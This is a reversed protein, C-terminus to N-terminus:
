RRASPPPVHPRVVLVSCPAARVVKEAVSGLLMRKLGSRGSAGIVVLDADTEGAAQVLAPAPKGDLAMMEGRTAASTLQQAMRKEADRRVEKYEDQMFGSTSGFATMERAVQMRHEISCALTLRAGTARAHEAAAALAATAGDSFDTAVLIRKTARHPRAVLVSCHAHRVGSEAVDGLFIYKLGSHSHSGVVLVRASREEAQDILRVDPTGTEIIVQLETAPRGTLKAVHERLAQELKLQSQPQDLVEQETVQPFLMHVGLPSPAVHCVLLEWGHARAWTDAQRIAEDSQESLDAGVLIRQTADM